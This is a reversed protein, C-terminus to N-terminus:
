VIEALLESRTVVRGVEVRMTGVRGGRPARIENEMKMAELIMIPQGLEVAQGPEVLIRAIMGPIPAKIRGDASPPRARTTDRDHIEVTHVSAKSKLWHANNDFYLEYPHDNVIVWEVADTAPVRVHLVEAGIRIEFTQGHQSPLDFELEYSNGDIIVAYKSM